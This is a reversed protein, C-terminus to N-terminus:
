SEPSKPEHLQANQGPGRPYESCHGMGAGGLTGRNLAKHDRNSPVQPRKFLLQPTGMYGQTQYEYLRQKLDYM